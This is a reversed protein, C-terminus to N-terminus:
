MRPFEGLVSMKTRGTRRRGHKLREVLTMASRAGVSSWCNCGWSIYISRIGNGMNRSLAIVSRFIVGGANSSLSSLRSISDSPRSTHPTECPGLSRAELRKLSRLFQSHALHNALFYLNNIFPDPNSSCLLHHLLILSSSLSSSSSYLM